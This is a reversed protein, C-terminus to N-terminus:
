LHSIVILYSLHAGHGSGEWNVEKPKGTEDRMKLREELWEKKMRHNGFEVQEGKKNKLKKKNSNNSKTGFNLSYWM